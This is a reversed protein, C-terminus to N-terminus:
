VEYAQGPTPGHDPSVEGPGHARPRGESGPRPSESKDKNKIHTKGARADDCSGHGTRVPPPVVPALLAAAAPDTHVPPLAAMALLASHPTHLTRSHTHWGPPAYSERGGAPGPDPRMKRLLLRCPFHCNPARWRRKELCFPEVEPRWPQPFKPWFLGWQSNPAAM